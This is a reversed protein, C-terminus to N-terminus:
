SNQKQNEYGYQINNTENFEEEIKKVREEYSIANSPSGFEMDNVYSLADKWGKKYIEIYKKVNM